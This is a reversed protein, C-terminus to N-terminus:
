KESTIYTSWIRLGTNKMSNNAYLEPIAM